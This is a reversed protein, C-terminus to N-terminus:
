GLLPDSLSPAGYEIHGAFQRAFGGPGDVVIDDLAFGCGAAGSVMKQFSCRGRM